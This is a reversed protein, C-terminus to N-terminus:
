VKELRTQKVLIRLKEIETQQLFSLKKMYELESQVTELSIITKESKVLRSKLMENERRLKGLEQYVDESFDGVDTRFRENGSVKRNVKYRDMFNLCSTRGQSEEEFKEKGFSKGM